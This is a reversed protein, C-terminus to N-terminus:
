RGPQPELRVAHPGLGWTLLFRYPLAARGASSWPLFALLGLARLLLRARWM